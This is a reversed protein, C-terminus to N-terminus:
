SGDRNGRKMERDLWAKALRWDRLVTQPSVDLIEATEEATFGGFFRLEVVRSKREDTQALAVLAEDLRVLDPAPERGTLEEDFAVAVVGGGRRRSRRSRAHDVLVQRMLRSSLAYFHSRDQWAVPKSGVLRLYAEHILATPRLSHGPRERGMFLRARRRLEEYVLPVLKELASDDGRSWAQLWQTVDNPSASGM